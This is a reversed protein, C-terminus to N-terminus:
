FKKGFPPTFTAFDELGVREESEDLAEACIRRRCQARRDGDGGPMRRLVIRRVLEIWGQHFEEFGHHLIPSWGHAAADLVPNQWHDRSRVEPLHFGRQARPDDRLLIEQVGDRETDGHGEREPGVLRQFDELLPVVDRPSLSTLGGVAPDSGPFVQDGDDSKGISIEPDLLTLSEDGRSLDDLLEARDEGFLLM